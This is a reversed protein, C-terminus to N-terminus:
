AWCNAMPSYRASASSGDGERYWMGHQSADGGGQALARNAQAVSETSALYEGILIGALMLVLMPKMVAWVIRSTSVGAARM